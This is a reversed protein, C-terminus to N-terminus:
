PGAVSFPTWDSAVYGGAKRGLATVRWAFSGKPNPLTALVSSIEVFGSYVETTGSSTIARMEVFFRVPEPQQASTWM